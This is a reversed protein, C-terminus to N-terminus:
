NRLVINNTKIIDDKIYEKKITKLSPINNCIKKLNSTLNSTYYLEKYKDKHNNTCIISFFWALDDIKINKKYNKCQVIICNDNDFYIIDIGIDILPNKIDQQVKKIDKVSYIFNYDFLLQSPIEKWLYVFTFKDLLYKKIFSEYVDGKNKNTM